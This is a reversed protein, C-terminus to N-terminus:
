IVIDSVEPVLAVSTRRGRGRGRGRLATGLVLVRNWARAQGLFLGGSAAAGVADEGQLPCLPGRGQQAPRPTRVGLEPRM